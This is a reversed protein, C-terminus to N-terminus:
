ESRKWVFGNEDVEVDPHLKLREEIEDNHYVYPKKKRRKYVQENIIRIYKVCKYYPYPETEGFDLKVNKEEGEVEIEYEEMSVGETTYEIKGKSEATLIPNYINKFVGVGPIEKPAEQEFFYRLMNYVTIELAKSLEMYKKKKKKLEKPCNSIYFARIEILLPYDIEEKSTYNRVAMNRYAYGIKRAVLKGAFGSFIFDINVCGDEYHCEASPSVGTEIGTLLPEYCEIDKPIRWIWKNKIWTPTYYLGVHYIRPTKPPRLETTYYKYRLRVPMAYKKFLPHKEPFAYMDYKRAIRVPVQARWRDRGWPVLKLVPEEEVHIWEGKRIDYVEVLRLDIPYGYERVWRAPMGIGVRYRSPVQKVLKIAEELGEEPTPGKGGYVYTTTEIIRETALETPKPTIYESPLIENPIEVELRNDIKKVPALTGV